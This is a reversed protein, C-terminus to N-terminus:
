LQLLVPDELGSHWAPSRDRAELAVPAATTLSGVWQAMTPVGQIKKKKKSCVFSCSYCGPVQESVVPLLTITRWVGEGGESNKKGRKRQGHGHCTYTGLGPISGVCLLSLVLDKVQQQSLEPDKNWNAVLSSGWPRTKFVCVGWCERCSLDKFECFGPSKVWGSKTVFM